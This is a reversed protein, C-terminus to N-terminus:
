RVAPVNGPQTGWAQEAGSCLAIRHQHRGDLPHPVVVQLDVTGVLDPHLHVALARDNGPTGDLAQHLL